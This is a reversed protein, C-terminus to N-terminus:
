QLDRGAGSSERIPRRGPETVTTSFKVVQGSQTMEELLTLWLRELEELSALETSEALTNLFDVREGSQVSVFSGEIMGATDRSIQRVVGFLEGLSAAREKLQDRLQVLNDENTRFVAQKEESQQQISALKERPRSSGAKASTVSQWFVLSASAIYQPTPRDSPVFRTSYNRSLNLAKRPM